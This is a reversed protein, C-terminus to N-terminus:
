IGGHQDQTGPERHDVIDQGQQTVAMSTLDNRHRSAAKQGFSMATGVRQSDIFAIDGEPWAGAPQPPPESPSIAKMSERRTPVAILKPWFAADRCRLSRVEIATVCCPCSM